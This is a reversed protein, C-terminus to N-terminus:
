ILLNNKYRPIDFNYGRRNLCDLKLCILGLPYNLEYATQNYDRYENLLSIIERDGILLECAFLNAQRETKDNDLFLTKERMGERALTRHLTDHGLEHAAVIRATTEDLTENIIIYRSKREYLYFGKLGGLNRYWVNIGLHEAIEAPERTRYKKVFRDCLEKIYEM